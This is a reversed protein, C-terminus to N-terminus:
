LTIKTTRDAEVVVRVPTGIPAYKESQDPIGVYKEIALTYEGPLVCPFDFSGQPHNWISHTLSGRKADIPRLTIQSGDAGPPRSWRVEVRGLAPVDIRVQPVLADHMRELVEGAVNVTLQCAAPPLDDLHLRGSRDDHAQWTRGTSPDRASVRAELVRAGHADLVDVAVDHGPQLRVEAPASNVVSLVIPIERPVWGRKEVSLRFEGDDMGSFSFEGDHGTFCGVGSNDGNVFVHARYIGRGEESLVRGVLKRGPELIRIAIERRESRELPIIEEEHLVREFPGLVQLTIPEGPRLDEVVFRGQDDCNCVATGRRQTESAMHASWCSGVLIERVPWEPLWGNSNAFLPSSSLFHLAIHSQSDADVGMLEIALQNGPELTLPLPGDVERPIQANGSWYGHARVHFKDIDHPVFEIVGHGQEDSPRSVISGAIGVAGPIPRGAMDTVVFPIDRGPSRELVIDGLDREVGLSDWRLGPRGRGHGKGDTLRTLEVSDIDPQQLPMEFHGSDDAAVGCETSNDGGAWVVICSVAARPVPSGDGADVVRGRLSPLKELDVSLGVAPAELRLHQEGFSRRPADPLTFLRPFMIGGSWGEPLGTWCSSGDAQTDEKLNFSEYEERGLRRGIEAQEPSDRFPPDIFELCLRLPRDPTKGDVRVRGSLDRGIPIAIRHMEGDLAVEARFPMARPGLVYVRVIEGGIGLELRGEADTVRDEVAGRDRALVVATYAAPLGQPDVVEVVTTSGLPSEGPSRSGNAASTPLDVGGVGGSKANASESLGSPARGDSASSLGSTRHHISLLWACTLIAIVAASSLILKNVLIVGGLAATTSVALGTAPQGAARLLVQRRVSALGRRALLTGIFGLGIGPALLRRLRALGRHIRMAVTDPRRDLERAIDVARRGDVLLPVLVERDAPSLKELALAIAEATERAALADSPEVEPTRGAAERPILAGRRRRVLGAQRVLVGVLWPLVKRERDFSKAGEIAALFTSQLVDEAESRDRTIRRAIRALDPATADFVEGLANVDGRDRFRAFLGELRRDEMAVDM